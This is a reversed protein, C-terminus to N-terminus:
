VDLTGGDDDEEPEPWLVAAVLVVGSPALDPHAAIAWLGDATMRPIDWRETVRDGAEVEEGDIYEPQGVVRAAALRQAATIDRRSGVWWM